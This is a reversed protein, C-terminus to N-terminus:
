RSGCRAGALLHSRHRWSFLDRPGEGGAAPVRRTQAAFWAACVGVRLAVAGSEEAPTVDVQNVANVIRGADDFGQVLPHVLSSGTREELSLYSNRMNEEVRRAYRAGFLDALGFEKRRVGWEDYLSTEYTAVLGGGQRVFERLQTCQGDSLAAINPLILTRFAALHEADLCRDHVM